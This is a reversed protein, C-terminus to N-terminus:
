TIGDDPPMGSQTLFTYIGRTTTELETRYPERPRRNEFNLERKMKHYIEKFTGALSFHTDTGFKIANRRSWITFNTTSTLLIRATRNPRDNPFRMNLIEESTFASGTIEGLRSWIHRTEGCDMFLHTETERHFQCLVCNGPAGPLGFMEHIGPFPLLQNQLKFNFTIIKHTQVTNHTENPIAIPSEEFYSPVGRNQHLPKTSGNRIRNKIAKISGALIEEKTVKYFQIFEKTRKYFRFPPYINRANRYPPLDCLNSIFPGINAHFFSMEVDLPTNEMRTKAYKFTQQLIMTEAFKSIHPFNFGGHERNQTAKEFQEPKASNHLCFAKAHVDLQKKQNNSLGHFQSHYAILSLLKSNAIVSRDHYNQTTDKMRKAETELNKIKKQTFNDVFDPTGVATGLIEIGNRIYKLNPPLDAPDLDIQPMTPLCSCCKSNGAPHVKLGSALGFDHILNMLPHLASSNETTVNLDDAYCLTKQRVSGPAPIGRIEPHANIALILPEIAVLFLFLSLADGQKVGRRMKITKTLFGNIMLKAGTASNLSKITNLFNGEFGLKELTKMLYERDVSDFAKIFDVSIILHQHGKRQADDYLDRLVHNPTTITRGPCAFQNEGIIKEMHEKLRECMVKTLIKADNNSLSIPRYNKMETRDEKKHIISITSIKVDYPVNGTTFMSNLIHTLPECLIASFRKYFDISLGDLGPSGGAKTDKIAKRVEQVCLLQNLEANIGATIKREIFNLFHTQKERVTTHKKYLNDYFKKGTELIGKSDHHSLGQDDKLESITSDKQGQKYKRFFEKTTFYNPGFENYRQKVMKEKTKTLLFEKLNNKAIQFNNKAESSQPNSIVNQQALEIRLELSRQEAQLEQMRIKAYKKYISAVKLKYKRWWGAPDTNYTQHTMHTETYSEIEQLFDPRDHVKANCRFRGKGRKKRPDFVFETILLRHDSLGTNKVHSRNSIIGPTTYFRDLRSFKNDAERTFELNNRAVAADSLDYTNKFPSWINNVYARSDRTRPQPHRDTAANEVFNFDGGLITPLTSQMLAHLETLTTELVPRTPTQPFHVNVLHFKDGKASIDMSMKKGEQDYIINEIKYDPRATLVAVGSWPAEEHSASFACPGRGWENKIRTEDQHRLNTEQLILIDVRNQHVLDFIATRKTPDARIGKCNLTAIKITQAAM